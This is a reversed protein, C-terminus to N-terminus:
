RRMIIIIRSSHQFNSCNDKSCNAKRGFYSNSGDNRALKLCSKCTTSSAHLHPKSRAAAQEIWQAQILSTKRSCSPKQQCCFHCASESIQLSTAFAAASGLCYFPGFPALPPVPLALCPLAAALLAAAAYTETAKM